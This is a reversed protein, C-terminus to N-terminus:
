PMSRAPRFGLNDFRREATDGGRSASRCADGGSGWGCGRIVFDDEDLTAIPDTAPEAPPTEDYVDEVWEWVNGM